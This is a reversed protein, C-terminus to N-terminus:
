LEFEFHIVKESQDQRTKEGETFSPDEKASPMRKKKSNALHGASPERKQQQDGEACAVNNLFKPIERYLEDPSFSVQSARPVTKPCTGVPIEHFVCDSGGKAM